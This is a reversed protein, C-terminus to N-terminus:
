CADTTANRCMNQVFPSINPESPSWCWFPEKGIETM